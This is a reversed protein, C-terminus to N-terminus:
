SQSKRCALWYGFAAGLLVLAPGIVVIIEGIEKATQYTM